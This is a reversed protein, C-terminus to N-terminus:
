WISMVPMSRLAPSRRTRPADARGPSRLTALIGVRFGGEEAVEDLAHHALLELDIGQDVLLEGLAPPEGADIGDKAGDKAGAGVLDQM